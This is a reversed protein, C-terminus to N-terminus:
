GIEVIWENEICQTFNYIFHDVMVMMAPDALPHLKAKELMDCINQMESPELYQDVVMKLFFDKYEDQGIMQKIAERGLKDCYRYMCYEGMNLCKAIHNKFKQFSHYSGRWISVYEDDDSDSTTPEDVNKLAYYGVDVGMEKEHTKSNLMQSGWGMINGFNKCSVIEFFTQAFFFPPLARSNKVFKWNQSDSNEGLEEESKGIRQFEM